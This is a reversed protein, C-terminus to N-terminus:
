ANQAVGGPGSGGGMRHVVADPLRGYRLSLLAPDRAEVKGARLAHYAWLGLGVATPHVPTPHCRAPHEPFYRDVGSGVVLPTDVEVQAVPIRTLPHLVEPLQTTKRLVARYVERKQADLLVTVREGAPLPLEVVMAEHVPVLVVPTRYILHWAKAFVLGMRLATFFGPGGAIALVDVADPSLGGDELLRLVLSPLWRSHQFPHHHTRVARLTGDEVWAVSTHPGSTALALLHRPSDM